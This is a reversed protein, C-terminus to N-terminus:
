FCQLLFITFIHFTLILNHLTSVRYKHVNYRRYQENLFYESSLLWPWQPSTTAPTAQATWQVFFEDAPIDMTYSVTKTAIAFIKKTDETQVSFHYLLNWNVLDCVTWLISIWMQGTEIWCLWYVRWMVWEWMYCVYVSSNFM